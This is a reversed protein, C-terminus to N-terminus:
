PKPKNQDGPFVIQQAGMPSAGIKPPGQNPTQPRYGGGMGLAGAM